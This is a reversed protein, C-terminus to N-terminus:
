EEFGGLGAEEQKRQSTTCVSWTKWTQVVDANGPGRDRSAHRHSKGVRNMKAAVCFKM